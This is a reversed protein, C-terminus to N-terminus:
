VDDEWAAKEAKILKTMLCQGQWDDKPVRWRDITGTWAPLHYLKPRKAGCWHRKFEEEIQRHQWEYSEHRHSEILDSYIAFGKKWCFDICTLEIARRIYAKEVAETPTLYRLDAKGQMLAEETELEFEASYAPQLDSDLDTGYKALVRLAAKSVPPSTVSVEEPLNKTATNQRPTKATGITHGKPAENEEFEDESELYVVSKSQARRSSRRTPIVQSATSTPLDESSNAAANTRQRKASPVQQDYGRDPETSIALVRSKGKREFEATDNPEVLAHKSDNDENITEAEKSRKDKRRKQQFKGKNAAVLEVKTQTDDLDKEVAKTSNVDPRKCDEPLISLLYQNKNDTGSNIEWSLCGAKARFRSARQTLANLSPPQVWRRGKITCTSPM